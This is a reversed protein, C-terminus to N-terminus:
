TEKMVPQGVVFRHGDPTALTMERMGYARDAPTELVIAGRQEIERYLADVDDVELYGFYNHDGTQEAPMAGPCRGLMVRVSGRTVLRWDSADSWEIAFGLADRFYAASRDIDPVALVYSFPRLEPRLANSDSM